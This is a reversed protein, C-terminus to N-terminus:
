GGRFDTFSIGVTKGSLGAEADLEAKRERLQQLYTVLTTADRSKGGGATISASVQASVESIHQNLVSARLAATAQEEYDNYQWAM